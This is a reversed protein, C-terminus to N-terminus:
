SLFLTEPLWTWPSRMTITFAGSQSIPPWPPPSYSRLFSLVENAIVDDDRLRLCRGHSEVAVDVVSADSVFSGARAEELICAKLSEESLDTDYGDLRAAAM